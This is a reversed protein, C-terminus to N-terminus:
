RVREQHAQAPAAFPEPGPLEHHLDSRSSQFRSAVSLEVAIRTSPLLTTRTSKLINEHHSRETPIRPRSATRDSLPRMEGATTKCGIEWYSYDQNKRIRGSWVSGRQERGEPTRRRM